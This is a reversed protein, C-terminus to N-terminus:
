WGAGKFMKVSQGPFWRKVDRNRERTEGGETM